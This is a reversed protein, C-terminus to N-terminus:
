TVLNKDPMIANNRIHRASSFDHIELQTHAALISYSECAQQCTILQVQGYCSQNSDRIYIVMLWESAGRASSAFEGDAPLVFFQFSIQAEATRASASAKVDSEGVLIRRQM